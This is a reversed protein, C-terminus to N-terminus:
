ILENKDKVKKFLMLIIQDLYKSKFVKLLYLETLLALIGCFIFTYMYRTHLSIIYIIIGLILNIFFLKSLEKIYKKEFLVGNSKKLFIFLLLGSFTNALSTALTIGMLGLFQPLYFDLIINLLVAMLNVVIPTKTNGYAYFVHMCIDRLALFPLGLVYGRLSNSTLLLSTDDFRGRMYVLKTIDDSFFFTCIVIPILFIEAVFLSKHIIVAVNIEKKRSAQETIEPFSATVISNIIVNEVFLYLVCSYSLASVAGINIKSAVSKDIILNFEHAAIGILLPTVLKILHKINTDIKFKKLSYKYLKRTEFFLLCSNISIAIIYSITLSKEKWFSATLVICIISVLSTVTGMLRVIVFRREAQLIASNVSLIGQLPFTLCLLKILHELKNQQWESYGPALFASIQKSFAFIIIGCYFMIITITTILTSIFLNNRSKDKNSVYVNIIGVSLSALFISSISDIFGSANYYIDTFTSTGFYYAIVVKNAFGVMKLLLTLFILLFINQSLNKRAKKM